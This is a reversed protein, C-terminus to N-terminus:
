SIPYSNIIENKWYKFTLMGYDWEMMQIQAYGASLVNEELSVWDSTALIPLNGYFNVNINDDVIPISGMYLCEWIRHTDIGNGEPCVIFKHNYINDLYDDFGMGNEGMETTVWSKDKLLDYPKQRKTPNTAINHNMYVLNKYERPEKLKEIMKRKKDIEPFWIDNELGIPISMVRDHIINVNQSFWKLVCDPPSFRMNTDCNHTIVIIKKDFNRLEEILSDAFFTHTYVIDGDTVRNKDFTNELYCYHDWPFVNKTRGGQGRAPAYHWKAIDKFKNGQIWDM